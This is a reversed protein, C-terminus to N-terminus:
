SIKSLSLLFPPILIQHNNRKINILAIKYMLHVYMQSLIENKM